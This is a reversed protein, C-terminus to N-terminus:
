SWTPRAETMMEVQRSPLRTALRSRIREEISPFASLLAHKQVPPHKKLILVRGRSTM